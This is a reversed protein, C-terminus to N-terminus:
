RGDGTTSSGKGTRGTRSPSGTSAVPAANADPEGQTSSQGTTGDRLVSGTDDLARGEVIPDGVESLDDDKVETVTFTGEMKFLELMRDSINEIFVAPRRAGRTDWSLDAPMDVGAEKLDKVSMVRIDSLGRYVVKHVSM